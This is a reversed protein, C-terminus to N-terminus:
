LVEYLGLGILLLGAATELWKTPLRHLLRAAHFAAQSCFFTIVGIISAALCVQAASLNEGGMSGLAMCGGVALADIATAIGVAMLALFGLPAASSHEDEEGGKWAGYIVSGGLACFVALVIWPAWAEVLTRVASGGAYGILPMAFQYGGVTLALLFSSLARRERLVLGYSFSYVTADVAMALAILIIETYNMRQLAPAPM